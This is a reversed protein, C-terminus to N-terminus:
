NVEDEDWSKWVLETDEDKGIRTRTICAFPRRRAFQRITEWRNALYWAAGSQGWEGIGGCCIWTRSPSSSPHIKVIFAYDFGQEKGVWVLRRHSKKTVIAGHESDYDIFQNASNEILDHTKPNTRGGISVFSFDTRADVDTHASVIPVRGMHRGFAHALYAVSRTTSCSNVTRLNTTASPSRPVSGEVTPYVTCADSGSAKYVIHFSADPKDSFVEKFRWARVTIWVWRLPALGFACILDWIYSM